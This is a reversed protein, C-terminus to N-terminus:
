GSKTNADDEGEDSSAVSSANSYSPSSNKWRAAWFFGISDLARKKEETMSSKKGDSLLKYQRRQTHVWCGLQPNAQYRQPVM